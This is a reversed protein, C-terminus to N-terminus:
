PQTPPGLLPTKVPTALGLFLTLTATASNSLWLNGSADIALGYPQNLPADLGFGLPPSLVAATPGDLHALTNGFYNAVWVNGSGDVAIGQPGVTGNSLTVQNAIAGAPTLKVVASANYDALWINGSQDIAIGAPLNCCPFSSVVGAPTVRAAGGEFAFWANHAADVAVASTFPLAYPAYGTAPSISAGTPALLTASSSAYDAIWIPGAPDAAIGLPYYLGGGTYGYGSLEVGAPSFKSVSGQHGNSAATVSQENTVWINNSPDVAIGYSQRLGLGPFGTPALPLGTPSFASVVAGNYNAVWANDSSDLALAGPQNLGGCTSACNGYTLSLTWDHPPSALVPQFPVQAPGANFVAVVNTAPNRVINLAADLTNTPTAPTSTAPSAAPNAAPSAASFLPTCASTGDSNVCPALVDALTNIKAPETLTGPPLTPIRGTSTDALNAALAFANRLGSANTASAGILAGPGLFQSLAWAAAVTTVENIQVFTSPTLSACSGLAATLVLAPNSLTPALGPNGGRAVLYVETNPTPCLYDNTITFAGATDTTIIRPALLDNAAVGNGSSGAAYLFIRAGSVPQQGGHVSGQLTSGPQSPAAAPISGCGSLLLPGVALLAIRSLVRRRPTM